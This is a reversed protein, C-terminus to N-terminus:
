RGDTHRSAQHRIVEEEKEAESKCVKTPTVDVQVAEVKRQGETEQSGDVHDSKELPPVQVVRNYSARAETRHGVVQM